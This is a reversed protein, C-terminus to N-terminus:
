SASRRRPRKSETPLGAGFLERALDCFSRAAIGPEAGRRWLAIIRDKEIFEDLYRIGVGPFELAAKPIPLISLGLGLGVYRRAAMVNNVEMATKLPQEWAIRRLTAELANRWPLGAPELILPSRLVDDLKLKKQTLFKHGKPACLAWSREYLLEGTILPSTLKPMGFQVLGVDASGSGVADLVFVNPGALLSIEVQPSRQRYEAIVTGIEEILLSTAGTIALRRVIGTRQEAFRDHLTDVGAVVRNALELFLEGDETLLLQRGRRVFMTAGFDREIARVQEWVAPQSVGLARAAASYSRERACACFARLQRLRLSKFSKARRDTPM